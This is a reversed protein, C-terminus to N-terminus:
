QGLTALLCCIEDDVDAPEAVTRAIEARMLERYKRRLRHVAVKAANETIGLRRAMDKYSDDVPLGTIFGKLAEFQEGNGAAACEDRLRDLVQDLLSLVWQKEFLREPSLDPSAELPYWSEAAVFDLSMPTQGSGRKKAQTKDWENALFNKFSTLLFSRFRGRAPAAIAVLNKELLRAFFEQTLDEAEHVSNIRRRAYAYLPYWYISCLAELSERSEPSSRHAAALVLSWQTTAFHASKGSNSDGASM